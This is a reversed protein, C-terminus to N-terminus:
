TLSRNYISKEPPASTWEVLSFDAPPMGVDWRRLWCEICAAMAFHPLSEYLGFSARNVEQKWLGADAFGMQVIRPEDSLLALWERSARLGEDFPRQGSGKNRRKVVADPLIDRLARRQLYRDEGPRQRLEFPLTLMFELLSRDLLPHRFDVSTRFGNAPTLDIAQLYIEEWLAHRGPEPHRPTDQMRGRRSLHYSRVFRRDIWSPLAEATGGKGIKQRLLHRLAPRAAANVLWHLMSRKYEDSRGWEQLQRRLRALHLRSLSDALHHPPCDPSGFVVDGGIGTLVADVGCRGLLEHYIAQRGAHSEAGPEARFDAPVTSFPRSFRVDLTHWPGGLRDVVSRSIETDGFDAGSPDIFSMAEVNKGLSLAAMLVSTSDLGGSLHCWVTEGAGVVPLVAAMLKERLMEEGAAENQIAAPRIEAPSWPMWTRVGSPTWVLTTGFRLRRVGRYPTLETCPMAKALCDAFYEADLQADARLTALDGLNNAFLIEGKALSYFMQRVGLSDQVLTVSRAGHDVVAAAFQGLVHRSLEAGWRCYAAGICEALNPPSSIGGRLSLDTKELNTTYGDALVTLRTGRFIEAEAAQSFLFLGTGSFKGALRRM